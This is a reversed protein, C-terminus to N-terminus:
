QITYKLGAKTIKYEKERASYDGGVITTPLDAAFSGSITHTQYEGVGWFKITFSQAATQNFAPAVPIGVVTAPPAPPLAVPVVIAPISPFGSPNNATPLVTPVLPRTSTYRVSPVANRLNRYSVPYRVVLVYNGDPLNSNLMNVQEVSSSTIVVKNDLKTIDADAPVYDVLTRVMQAPDTTSPVLRFLLLDLNYIPHPIYAAPQTPLTGVPASAAAPVPPPTYLGRPEAFTMQINLWPTDKFENGFTPVVAEPKKDCSQFLAPFLMVLLLTQITRKNYM